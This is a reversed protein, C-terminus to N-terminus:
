SSKRVAFASLDAWWKSFKLCFSFEHLPECFVPKEHEEATAHNGHVQETVSMTPVTPVAFLLRIFHGFSVRGGFRISLIFM